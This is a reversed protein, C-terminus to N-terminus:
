GRVDVLAVLDGGDTVVWAGFIHNEVSLETPIGDLNFLVTGRECDSMGSIRERGGEDVVVSHSTIRCLDDEPTQSAVSLLYGGALIVAATGIIISKKM